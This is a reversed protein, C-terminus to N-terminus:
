SRRMAKLLNGCETTRTRDALMEKMEGLADSMRQRSGLEQKPMNDLVSEVNQVAMETRRVSGDRLVSVGRQLASLAADLSETKDELSKNYM